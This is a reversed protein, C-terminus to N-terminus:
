LDGSNATEKEQIPAALAATNKGGQKKTKKQIITEFSNENTRFYHQFQPHYDVNGSKGKVKKGLRVFGSSHNDLYAGLVKSRIDKRSKKGDTAKINSPFDKTTVEKSGGGDQFNGTAGDDKQQLLVSGQKSSGGGCSIMVLLLLILASPLVWDYQQSSSNASMRKKKIYRQSFFFKYTNLADL